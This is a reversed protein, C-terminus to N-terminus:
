AEVEEALMQQGHHAMMELREIQSQLVARGKETLTYVKRRGEKRVMEILAEEELTSFAGYLTGPGVTIAGGTAAKVEQMVGYGHTPEVLMLMIYYTAETLPLYKTLGDNKSM